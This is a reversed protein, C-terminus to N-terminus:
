VWGMNEVNGFPRGGGGCGHGSGAEEDGKEVADDEESRGHGSEDVGVVVGAPAVVVGIGDGDAKAQAGNGGEDGGDEDALHRFAGRLASKEGEGEEPKEEGSEEDDKGGIVLLGVEFIRRKGEVAGGWGSDTRDIFGRRMPRSKRAGEAAFASRRREGRQGSTGSTSAEMWDESTAGSPETKMRPSNEAMSPTGRGPRALSVGRPFSSWRKRGSITGAGSSWNAEPLIMRKPVVM